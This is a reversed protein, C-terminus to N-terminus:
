KKKNKIMKNVKEIRDVIEDMGGAFDGKEYQAILSNLEKIEKELEDEAFKSEYDGLLNKEYGFKLLMEDINMLVVSVGINDKNSLLKKDSTIFVASGICDATKVKVIDEYDLNQENSIRLSEKLIDVSNAIKFHDLITAVVMSRNKSKRLIYDITSVTDRDIFLEADIDRSAIEKLLLRVNKHNERSAILFDLIINTDLFYIM